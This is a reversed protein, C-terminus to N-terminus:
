QSSVDEIMTKFCKLARIWMVVKYGWAANVHPTHKFKWGKSETECYVKYNHWIGMYWRVYSVGKAAVVSLPHSIVM